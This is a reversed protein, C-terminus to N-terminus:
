ATADLGAIFEIVADMAAAQNQSATRGSARRPKFSHDGDEIWHMRIAPALRYGAVEDPGGFPDRTGQCILTPTRIRQLHETRLREPKGPPHFPYGLCVVGALDYDDAILTAIRAGLSKGGIITRMASDPAHAAALAARWTELLIREPDPPRRRGERRARAMYPFEFRVVELGGLARTGPRAPLGLAFAEMFPSDMPQGAGHALILRWAGDEPGTRRLSLEM